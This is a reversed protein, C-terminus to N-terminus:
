TLFFERVVSQRVEPTLRALLGRMPVGGDQATMASLPAAMTNLRAISNQMWPAVMVGQVLNKQNIAIDPAKVLCIWGDNYPDKAVQSPNDLASTNVATVVGEVPSLLDVAVDGATLTLLKQGQRVWRNLGTVEIHDITGLLNSAFDDIGVRANQRGEDFAWTHGPHFCYAEPVLSGLDRQIKPRPMAPPRARAAAVAPQQRAGRFYSITLILLFMLLVLLISM